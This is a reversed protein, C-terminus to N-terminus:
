PPDGQILAIPLRVTAIASQRNTETVARFRVIGHWTRGDPDRTADAAERRLNVLHNAALTLAQDHLIATIAGAIELCETKGHARSWIHLLLRHEAGAETGTSWDALHAPGFSVYPFAADRPVADYIRDAVLGALTADAGLAAFVAKQLALSADTM